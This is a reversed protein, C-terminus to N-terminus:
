QLPEDSRVHTIDPCPENNQAQEALKLYKPKLAEYSSLGKHKEGLKVFPSYDKAWQALYEIDKKRDEATLKPSVACGNAFFIFTLVCILFLITGHRKHIVRRGKM